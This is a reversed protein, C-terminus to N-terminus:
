KELMKKIEALFDEVDNSVNSKSLALLIAGVTPMILKVLGVAQESMVEANDGNIYPLIGFAMVVPFVGKLWFDKTTIFKEIDSLKSLLYNM